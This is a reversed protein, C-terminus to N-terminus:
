YVNVTYSRDTGFTRSRVTYTIDTEVVHINDYKEPLTPLEVDFSKIIKGTELLNGSEVNVHIQM